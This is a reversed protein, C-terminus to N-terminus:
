PRTSYTSYVIGFTGTGGSYPYVKIKVTGTQNATFSQATTYGSDVGSFISIGNSYTADVKVDLTKTSNGQYSDNWWVRYVTGSTVNFSYWVANGSSTINGDVWTNASLNYPSTETGTGVSSGSVYNWKAYLTINGTPTYFSNANYNTGTGSSNTNWGNFTYGTRSVSPLTISSGAPVTQSTPITGTGGNINFTVTSTWKAYLTINGTPTYSSNANYNTGMGSPDTNWGGFTYNTRYLGSGSNLTMSSGANVTQATPTTGSGGNSNYTVTVSNVTIIINTNYLKGDKEVFLGVTHKGAITSSFNYTNDSQNTNVGDLYWQKVVYGTSQATITLIAGAAVTVTGGSTTVLNGHQDVWYYEFRNVNTVADTQPFIATIVGSNANNNVLTAGDITFFNSSVGQLTYGFKPTLSVTATYQTLANFKDSVYPSWTVTGSYQENGTITKIPIRGYVPAVVGQIDSINIVIADTSPFVVTIVGSNTNNSISTAGDLTFYNAVIGQLTYGIKPTLTIIATYVTSAAFIDPNGNWSVTGSYQENEIINTVPTEGKVPINVGQITAINIVNANTEPFVATIVGSNATNSVSTAGAVTFFNAAVGQLKYGTKPTLTITATYQTAAIFTTHNPSWTVTGSYQANEAITTVPTGGKAPVSIGQIASINIVIDSHSTSPENCGVLVFVLMIAFAVIGLGSIMKGM